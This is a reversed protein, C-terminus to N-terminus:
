KKKNQNLQIQRNMQFKNGLKLNSRLIFQMKDLYKIKINKMKLKPKFM